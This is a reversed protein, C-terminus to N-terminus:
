TGKHPWLDLWDKDEEIFTDYLCLEVTQGAWRDQFAKYAEQNYVRDTGMLTSKRVNRSAPWEPEKQEFHSEMYLSQAVYHDYVPCEIKVRVIKLNWEFGDVLNEVHRRCEEYNHFRFLHSTMHEVRIVELKPTLLEVAITNMGCAKAAAHIGQDATIHVEFIEM